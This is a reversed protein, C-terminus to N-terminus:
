HFDIDAVLIDETKVGYQQLYAIALQNRSDVVFKNVRKENYLFLCEQENLYEGGEDQRWLELESMQKDCIYYHRYPAPQFIKKVEKGMTIDGWWVVGLTPQLVPLDFAKEVDVIFDAPEAQIKNRYLEYEGIYQQYEALLRRITAIIAPINEEKNAFKYRAPIAVDVDNGAAGKQGTIICCGCAAAERPIRDKGPHNGFDIYVKSKKMLDRVESPSMNQIPVWQIDPAQEMLLQTFAAGKKPNYLVIDERSTALDAQIQNIYVPELYDSVFAIKQEPVGNVVLFDWAYQSQVWHALNDKENNKKDLFGMIGRLPVESLLNQKMINTVFNNVRIMYNDVSMWWMIQRIQREENYIAPCTEPIVLVDDPNDDLEKVYPLLYKKYAKAVPDEDKGQNGGYYVMYAEVGHALLCSCLQHALTPGGTVVGWPACVFVKSNDKLKM